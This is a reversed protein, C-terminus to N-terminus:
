RAIMAGDLTACVGLTDFRIAKSYGVLRLGKDDFEGATVIGGDATTSSSWDWERALLRESRSAAYVMTDYVIEVATRRRLRIGLRASRGALEADQEVFSLNRSAAFVHKDSLAWGLRCTDKTAFGEKSFWSENGSKGLDGTGPFRGAIEVITLPRGDTAQPLRLVLMMGEDAARMLLDRDFPMEAVIAREEASLAAQPDGGFTRAVEEVGLFDVAFIRRADLNAPTEM